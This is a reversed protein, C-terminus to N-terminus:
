ELTAQLAEILNPALDRHEVIEEPESDDAPARLRLVCAASSDRHTVAVLRAERRAPHEAALRQLHEADESAEDVEAQAEPPLVVIEQVLACGHVTEPWEIQALAEGIDESPLEDQAIPTLEAADDLQEALEPQESILTSTPVLAFLQPAQDWGASGVFEEIERAIGGLLTATEDQESVGGDHCGDAFRSGATHDPM